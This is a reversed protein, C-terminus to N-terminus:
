NRFEKLAEEELFHLKGPIIFAYPSDIKEKSLEKLSGYFIKQKETGLCSAVLMKEIKVKKMELIKVFQRLAFIFDLGIDILLLSHAGIEQNQKIIEVFSDPNFNEKWQPMSATKGFKYLQLGTLSVATFISANNYIRCKIKNKKCEDIISQHTTAALPSGYVLLSIDKRKAENLFELGEVQDRDLIIFSIGLVKQLEDIKYPFDVTYSELYVIKSKKVSELAELSISKLDLGLGILNLM